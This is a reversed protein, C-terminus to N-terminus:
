FALLLWCIEGVAYRLYRMFHYETALKYRIKRFVTLM